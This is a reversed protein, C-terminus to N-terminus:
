SFVYHTTEIYDEACDKRWTDWDFYRGAPGDIWPYYIRAMEDYYDNPDGEWELHDLIDDVDSADEVEDWYEAVAERKDDDLALWEYVRELDRMCAGDDQLCDPVGEWDQWMPELTDSEWEDSFMKNIYDYLAEADRFSELDLWAGDLTGSNYRNWTSVYVQIDASGDSIHESIEEATLSTVERWTKIEM